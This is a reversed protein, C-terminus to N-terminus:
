SLKYPAGLIIHHRSSSVSHGDNAQHAEPMGLIVLLTVFHQRSHGNKGRKPRHKMHFKDLVGKKM